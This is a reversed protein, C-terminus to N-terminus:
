APVNQKRTRRWAKAGLFSLGVCSLVLTSPEPSDSTGGGGQGGGGNFTILSGISGSTASLGGPLPGSPVVAGTLSVNLTLGGGIDLVQASPDLVGVLSTFGPNTGNPAGIAGQFFGQFTLSPASLLDVANAGSHDGPLARFTLTFVKTTGPTSSFTDQSNPDTLNTLSGLISAVPTDPLNSPIHHFAPVISTMSITTTGTNDSGIGPTDTSWSYTYDVFDARAGTGAFLLFALATGFLPAVKCNM